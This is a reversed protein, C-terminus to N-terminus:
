LPHPGSLGHRFGHWREELDPDSITEMVYDAFASGTAGSDRGTMVLRKEYTGCIDLTM